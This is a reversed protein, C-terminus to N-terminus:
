DTSSSTAEEYSCQTVCFFRGGEAGPSNPTSFIRRRRRRALRTHSSQIGKWHKRRWGEGSVSHIKTTLSRKSAEALFQWASNNNKSCVRIDAHLCGRRFVARRICTQRYACFPQVYKRVYEVHRNQEEKTHLTQRYPNKDGRRFIRIDRLRRLVSHNQM